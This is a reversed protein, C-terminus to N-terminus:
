EAKWSRSEVLQNASAAVASGADTRCLGHATGESLLGDRGSVLPVKIADSRGCKPCNRRTRETKLNSLDCGSRSAARNHVRASAALAGLIQARGQLPGEVM